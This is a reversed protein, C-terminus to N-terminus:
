RAAAFQLARADDDRAGAVFVGAVVDRHHERAERLLRFRLQVRQRLGIQTDTLKMESLESFEETFNQAYHTFNKRMAIAIGRFISCFPM